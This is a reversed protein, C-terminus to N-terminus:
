DISLELATKFSQLGSALLERHAMKQSNISDISKEEQCGSCHSLMESNILHTVELKRHETILYLAAHQTCPKAPM